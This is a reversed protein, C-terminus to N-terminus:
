STGAEPLSEAGRHWDDAYHWPYVRIGGEDVVLETFGASRKASEYFLASTTIHTLSPYLPDSSHSFVHVHGALYHLDRGSEGLLRRLAAGGGLRRGYDSQYNLTRNLVPYHALVIMQEATVSELLEATAKMTQQGIYGRSSILNPRVTPIQLLACTATLESLLPTDTLPAYKGCYGQFRGKRQAEFTYCDHNGPVVYLAPCRSAVQDLFQAAQQFEEDTATSTLDGGVFVADVDMASLTDLFSQARHIHLHRHRRLALNLNGLFRKNMLRLPNRVISWFHLDTIHIFRAMYIGEITTTELTKADSSGHTSFGASATGVGFKM